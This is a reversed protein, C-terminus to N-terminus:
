GAEAHHSRLQKAIQRLSESTLPQETGLGQPTRERIFWDAARRYVVAMDDYAPTVYLDCQGDNRMGFRSTPELLLRVDWYQMLLMPVEYTPLPHDDTIRKPAQRTSWELEKCWGEVRTVLENVAAIWEDRVAAPDAGPPLLENADGM